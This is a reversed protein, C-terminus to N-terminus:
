RDNLGKGIMINPIQKEIRALRTKSQKAQSFHIIYGRQRGPTLTNFAANLDSNQDLMLQLEEPVPEPNKVFEVKLGAKEVEIAEFVYHKINARARDIDQMNNFRLQRAAQSNKGVQVLMNFPNQMLSGKFFSLATYEKFACLIVINKGNFTYCPQSWKLEETLGCEKLIDRLVVLEERWTNVKCKSSKYYKCRGCGDKLYLDVEKSNLGSLYLEKCM